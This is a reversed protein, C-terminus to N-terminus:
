RSEPLPGPRLSRERCAASMRLQLPSAIRSGAVRRRVQVGPKVYTYAVCKRDGACEKRCLTSDARPLDFDRYDSGPRDTREETTLAGSAPAALVLALIPIMM